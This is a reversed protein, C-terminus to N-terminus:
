PTVKPLGFWQPCAHAAIVLDAEVPYHRLLHRAETRVNRTVDPTKVPDLLEQLFARTQLVARTREYPMTM